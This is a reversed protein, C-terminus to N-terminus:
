CFQSTSTTAKVGAARDALLHLGATSVQSCRGHPGDRHRWSAAILGIVLSGMPLADTWGSGGSVFLLFM